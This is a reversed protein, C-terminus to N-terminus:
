HILLFPALVTASHSLGYSKFILRTIIDLLLTRGEVHSPSKIKNGQRNGEKVIVFALKAFSDGKNNINLYM